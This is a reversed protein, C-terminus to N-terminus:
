RRDEILEPRAAADGTTLTLFERFLGISDHPGPSSEPHYQVAFLRAAPDIFGECTQDNLNIHTVEVGRPLSDPDVAYGHNQSTVAVKKTRVDQVPHNAGRHGFKLKFTTAGMALAAIQHGLCIGFIPVRGILRRVTEVAYAATTPDGPGNSLFVSDPKRALVDDASTTAPVVTVDFGTEHLIRFINRKAGFDFAVCSLRADPSNKGEGTSWRAARPETWTRIEKCTVRRVLDQDELSPANKAKRVLSTADRDVSSLIGKMAGATRIHRTVARTDIEAIGPVGHEKLYHHLGQNARWSSAMSSLERVAFGEVQPRGSEHDDPNTGVNGIEPCTMVVIQGAYSPDTLIEQYGTMSTNFVVEGTREGVAGFARGRFVRGDEFALIAEM